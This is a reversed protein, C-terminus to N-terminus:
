LKTMCGWDRHEACEKVYMDWSKLIHAQESDIASNGSYTGRSMNEIRAMLGAGGQSQAGGRQAFYSKDEEELLSRVLRRRIPDVTGSARM